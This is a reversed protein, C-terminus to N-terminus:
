ASLQTENFPLPQHSPSATVGAQLSASRRSKGETEIGSQNKLGLGESPVGESDTTAAV